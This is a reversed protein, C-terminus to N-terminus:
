QKSKAEYFKNWYFHNYDLRSVSVSILIFHFVGCLHDVFRAVFPFMMHLESANDAYIKSLLQTILVEFSTEAKEVIQAVQALSRANGGGGGSQNSRTNNGLGGGGGNNANDGGSFFCSAQMICTQHEPEISEKLAHSLEICLTFVKIIITTIPLNTLFCSAFCNELFKEHCEIVSDLSSGKRQINDIFSGFFPDIVEFAYFYHFNRVFAIMKYRLAFARRHVAKFSVTQGDETWAQQNKLRTNLVNDKWTEELEMAAYRCLFVYRFLLEYCIISKQSFILSLPFPVDFKLGLSEYCFLRASNTAGVAAAPTSLAPGASQSMAATTALTHPLHSGSNAYLRRQKVEDLSDVMDRSGKAGEGIVNGVISRNLSVVEEEEEDDDVECKWLVSSSPSPGLDTDKMTNGARMLQCIQKLFSKGVFEIHPDDKLYARDGAGVSIGTAMGMMSDLRHQVVSDTRRCLDESAFSIFHVLFDGQSQLLYHRVASLTEVLQSQHMLIELLQGSAEEYAAEISALYTCEDFSYELSQPRPTRTTAVLSTTSSSSTSVSMDSAALSSGALKHTSGHATGAGSTRSYLQRVKNIISVYKGTKYIISEHRKLFVPLKSPNIRYRTDWYNSCSFM